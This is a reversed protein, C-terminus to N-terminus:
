SPRHEKPLTLRADCGRRDPANQLTLTGGHAEAIQRSLVLGIGSGNAKTTFFPVFLNASEALGPGEDQVLIEVRGARDEWSVKVGGQTELAADTANRVLNILLQELQVADGSIEVDPGNRVDIPIRKELSAVGRVLSGVQVPGFTPPPLRALQAHAKLFRGLGESRRAIVELGRSADERWEGDQPASRLLEQVSVAISQIPALSNNIEHSLVRVLRQWALREEERLARRLNALVVLEHARGEQRFPTRRLEWPGEDGPFPMEIRRRREGQLLKAIGLSAASQGILQSAPLGLLKEGARNVLRLVQEPDFAMLAVDIEQIVKQLLATAELESLRQTRLNEALANVEALVESMADDRIPRRGRMSYDGERLAMVLSSLTRLHHVLRARAAFAAALWTVVILLGATWFVKASHEHSLLLYLAVAVAPAGSLLSLVLVRRDLSPIGRRSSV